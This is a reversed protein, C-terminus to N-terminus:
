SILNLIMRQKKKQKESSMPIRKRVRRKIGHDIFWNNIAHWPKKLKRSAFNVSVNTRRDFMEVLKEEEKATFITKPKGGVNKKDDQGNRVRKIYRYVTTKPIGLKLFYEAVDKDTMDQNKSMFNRVVSRRDEYKIVEMKVHINNIM